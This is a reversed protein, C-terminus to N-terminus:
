SGAIVTVVGLCAAVTILGSLVSVSPKRALLQSHRIPNEFAFYTGASIFISLVALGLRTLVTNHRLYQVGLIIIPLHWLYISYSWRGIWKFPALSLLSEAGYASEATGGAIILAAAVVPLAAVWGPYALNTDLKVLLIVLGGLGVWTIAAAFTAPLRKLRSTSLALLGGVALEWARTLASGYALPSGASAVVSWWYSAVVVLVLLVSLKARLTWRSGVAAVLIFIAPYVLYFQEEVALSWYTGLLIEPHMNALFLAAWRTNTALPRAFTGNVIFQGAYAIVIVLMALPIIRRARRGYFALVGTRGTTTRERLLLGTIVFGSIVFFVDVGIYGAPLHGIGIHDTLVLLVAVARLGEIDPRFARDEPATGAEDGSELFRGERADRSCENAVDQQDSSLYAIRGADDTSPLKQLRHWPTLM